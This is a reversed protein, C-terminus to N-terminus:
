AATEATSAAPRGLLAAATFAWAAGAFWGAIADSPFHVGLWVRSFAIGLSLVMAGAILARRLRRRPALAAFALALAIYVLAANFSHGSPFSAGGAETLHPVIMPRPRGVLLKLAYEVVWGSILTGALVFSERRMRLARLAFFGAIAFAYRLMVGGLATLDRVMELLWIPGRPLMLPGSRWFSLGASDFAAADGGLVMVAVGAFGLWCLLAATSALAPSIHWSRWPLAIAAPPRDKPASADNMLPVM